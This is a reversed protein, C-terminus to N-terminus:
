NKKAQNSTQERAKGKGKGTRGKEGKERERVRVEKYVRLFSRTMGRCLMRREVMWFNGMLVCNKMRMGGDIRM